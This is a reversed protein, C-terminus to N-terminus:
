QDHDQDADSPVAIQPQSTDATSTGAPAPDPRPGPMPVADNPAVSWSETVMSGTRRRPWTLTRLRPFAEATINVTQILWSLEFCIVYAYGYASSTSVGAALAGVVAALPIAILRAYRSRTLLWACAGAAMAGGARGLVTATSPAWATTYALQMAAIGACVAVIPTMQTTLQRLVRGGLYSLRPLLVAIWCALLAVPLTAVAATRLLADTPQQVTLAGLLAYIVGITVGIGAAAALIQQPLKAQQAVHRAALAAVRILVLGRGATMVAVTALLCAVAFEGHNLLVYDIYTDIRHIYSTSLTQSLLVLSGAGAVALALNQSALEKPAAIPAWTASRKEAAAPACTRACGLVVAQEPRPPVLAIVGTMAQIQAPVPALSPDGGTLILCTVTAPEAEAADLAEAVTQVAAAAIRGSDRHGSDAGLNPTSRHVAAHTIWSQTEWELDGHRQLVTATVADGDIACVQLLGGVPVVVGATQTAYVAAAVAAPVLVPEAFGARAAAQRLLTRRRLGWAAPVVLCLEAITTGCAARAEAACRDILAGVADVPDVTQQAVAIPGSALVAMPSRLMMDPEAAGRQLGDAGTLLRGSSTVYVATPLSPQDDIFLPMTSGAPWRCVARVQAVGIDVILSVQEV